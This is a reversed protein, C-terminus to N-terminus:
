GMDVHLRHQGCQLCRFLCGVLTGDRSLRALLWDADRPTAEVIDPMVEDLIPALDDGGAYGLFACPQDCHSLWVPQQWASYGPTRTCIAQLLAADIAPPADDPDPSVGEIEVWDNFEGEFRAAARGDAICWPCLFEPGDGACYFPGQYRWARTEGCCDCVGDEQAFCLAYANPHHLFQPLQM